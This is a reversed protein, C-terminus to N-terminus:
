VQAELPSLFIYYVQSQKFYVMNYLICLHSLYHQIIQIILNSLIADDINDLTRLVFEQFLQYKSFLSQDM